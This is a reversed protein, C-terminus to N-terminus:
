ARGGARDQATIATWTNIEPMEVGDALVAVERGPYAVQDLLLQHCSSQRDAGRRDDGSRVGRPDGGEPAHRWAPNDHACRELHLFARCTIGRRPRCM